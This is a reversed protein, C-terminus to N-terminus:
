FLGTYVTWNYGTMVYKEDIEDIDLKDKWHDM